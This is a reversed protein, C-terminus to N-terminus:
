GAADGLDWEAEPLPKGNDRVELAALEPLRDRIGQAIARLYVAREKGSLRPWPGHDFAARAARVAAEADEATAAPIHYFVQETAPDIVPLSGGKAPEVWAGNIYLQTQM